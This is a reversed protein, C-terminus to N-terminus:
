GNKFKANNGTWRRKNTNYIFIRDSIFIVVASLSYFILPICIKLEEKIVVVDLDLMLVGNKRMSVIGLVGIPWLIPGLDERAARLRHAVPLATAIGLALVAATVAMGVHGDGVVM